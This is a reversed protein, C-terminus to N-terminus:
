KLGAVKKIENHIREADDRDGLAGVRMNILTIGQRREKLRILVSAGDKRVADIRGHIGDDISESVSIHLNSLAANTMNWATKYDLPYEVEVAGEIYKYVGIGVAAGGTLLAVECGWLPTLSLLLAVLHLLKKMTGGKIYNTHNEYFEYGEEGWKLPLHFFSSPFAHIPCIKWKGDEM